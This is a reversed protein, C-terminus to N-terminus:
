KAGVGKDSHDTQNSDSGDVERSHELRTARQRSKRTALVSVLILLKIMLFSLFLVLALPLITLVIALAVSLTLLQPAPLRRVWRLGTRALDILTTWLESLLATVAEFTTEPKQTQSNAQQTQEQM